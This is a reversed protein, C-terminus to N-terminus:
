HAMQVHRWKVVAELILWTFFPSEAQIANLRQPPRLWFKEVVWDQKREDFQNKSHSSENM